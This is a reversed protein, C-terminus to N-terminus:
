PEPIDLMDISTGSVVSAVRLVERWLDSNGRTFPHPGRSTASGYDVLLGAAVLRLMVPRVVSDSRGTAAAVQRTTVRGNGAALIIHASAVVETFAANNFM